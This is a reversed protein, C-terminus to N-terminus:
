EIGLWELDGPLEDASFDVQLVRRTQNGTSRESAHLIPTAYAWVDGSEALCAITPCSAAKEAVAGAPLKGFRHSGEAVLLPANNPDVPDLHVRLTVMREILAFPPEVHDLGHKVSWPGFGTIEQRTKVCITRDQHWGLSWNSDPTKNFLIARVPKAFQPGTIALVNRLEDNSSLWEAIQPHATIREGANNRDIARLISLLREVSGALAGPFHRYGRARFLSEDM